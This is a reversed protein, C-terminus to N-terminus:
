NCNPREGIETFLGYDTVVLVETSSKVQTIKRFRIVKDGQGAVKTEPQHPHRQVM